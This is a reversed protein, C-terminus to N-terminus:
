LLRVSITISCELAYRKTGILMEQHQIYALHPFVPENHTRTHTYTHTICTDVPYPISQGQSQKGVM